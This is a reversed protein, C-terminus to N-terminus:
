YTTISKLLPLYEGNGNDLELIRELLYGIDKHVKRFLNAQIHQCTVDAFRLGATKYYGRVFAALQIENHFPDPGLQDATVAREKKVREEQSLTKGPIKQHKQVYCHARWKRRPEELIVLEEAKYSMFAPNNITFLKYTELNYLNDLISRQNNEHSDLFEGIYRKSHKYIDAGHYGELAYQLVEGISRRLSTFTHDALTQLPGNWPTVSLLCVQEKVADDVHDPLGPRKHLLILERIQAISMFKKGAGLHPAFVNKKAPKQFSRRQDPSSIGSGVSGADDERRAPPSPRMAFQAATLNRSAPTDPDPMRMRKPTQVSHPTQTSLAGFDLRRRAIDPPPSGRTSLSGDESEDDLSIVEPASEDSPDKYIFRPKMDLIADRFDNSLESWSSLFRNSTAGGELLRRVGDSFRALRERVVHQANANQLDPLRSLQEDVLRTQAIVKENIRPLSCINTLVMFWNLVM